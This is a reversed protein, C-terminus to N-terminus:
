YGKLKSYINILKKKDIFKKLNNLLLEFRENLNDLKDATHNTILLNMRKTIKFIKKKLNEYFGASEFM